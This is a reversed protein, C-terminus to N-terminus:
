TQTERPRQCESFDAPFTPTSSDNWDPLTSPHRGCGRAEGRQSFKPMGRGFTKRKPLLFHKCNKRGFPRCTKNINFIRFIHTKRQLFRNRYVASHARSLKACTLVSNTRLIYFRLDVSSCRFAARCQAATTGLRAALRARARRLHDQRVPRTLMNGDGGRARGTIRCLGM